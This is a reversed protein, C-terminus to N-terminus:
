KLLPDASVIERAAVDFCFNFILSALDCLLGTLGPVSKVRRDEPM